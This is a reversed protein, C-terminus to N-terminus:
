VVLEFVLVIWFYINNNLTKFVNWETKESNDLVRCNIQNFINMLIFTHFCVTDQVLRNTPENTEPNRTPSDLAFGEDDPGFLIYNGFFM